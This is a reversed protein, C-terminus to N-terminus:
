RGMSIIKGRKMSPNTTEGEPYIMMTCRRGILSATTLFSNVIIGFASLDIKDTPIDKGKVIDSMLTAMNDKITSHSISLALSSSVTENYRSEYM